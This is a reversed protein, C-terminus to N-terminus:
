WYEILRRTKRVYAPAPPLTYVLPKVVLNWQKIKRFLRQITPHQEDGLFTDSYYKLGPLTPGTRFNERMTHSTLPQDPYRYYWEEVTDRAHAEIEDMECLYLQTELRDKDIDALSHPRFVLNNTVVRGNAYQARHVLEHLTTKLFRFRFYAWVDPDSSLRTNHKQMTIILQIRALQGKDPEYCYGSIPPYYKTNDDTLSSFKDVGLVVRIRTEELAKNLRNVFSRANIARGTRQARLITQTFVSEVAPRITDFQATIHQELVPLKM